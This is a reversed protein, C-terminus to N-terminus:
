LPRVEATMVLERLDAAVEMEAKTWPASTAHLQEKWLAFSKRPSVRVGDGAPVVAKEPNGAWKVTQPLEARFFYILRLPVRSLELLILGAATARLKELSPFGYKLKNTAFVGSHVVHKLSNYLESFEEPEPTAGSRWLGEEEIVAVGDCPILERLLAAAEGLAALPSPQGAMVALLRSLVVNRDILYGKEQESERRAIEGSLVRGLFACATRMEYATWRPTENHCAILGWLLGNRVISVSMSAAVGMNQMYECHIPSVSRLTAFSMDTPRGSVPNLDPVLPSAVYGADPICRIASLVYMRRAQEPIDSAPYRLGLFPEMWPSKSEAVVEGEGGESFRYILVRGYGTVRRIGEAAESLLNEFSTAAQLEHTTRSVNKYFDLFYSQIAPESPELELFDCGEYSHVIGDLWEGTTQTLIKLQVPNAEHPDPAALASRVMEMQAPTLVSGLGGSLVKEPSVGLMVGCNQSVQVVKTDGPQLVFM